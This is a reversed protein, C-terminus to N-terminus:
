RGKAEAAAKVSKDRAQYWGKLWAERSQQAHYACERATRGDQFARAGEAEQLKTM